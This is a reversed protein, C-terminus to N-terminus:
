PLSEERIKDWKSGYVTYIYKFKRSIINFLFELAMKNGFM